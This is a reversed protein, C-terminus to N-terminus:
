LNDESQKAILRIKMSFNSKLELNENESNSVLYNYALEGYKTDLEDKETIENSDDGYEWKLTIEFDSEEDKDIVDKTCKCEIKFPLESMTKNLEESDYSDGLIYEEGFLTISDIRYDVKAAIDGLNRVLISHKKEKVGPYIEGFDLEINNELQEENHTFEIRWLKVNADLKLTAKSFNIFWAYSCGILIGIIVIIMISIAIKKLKM